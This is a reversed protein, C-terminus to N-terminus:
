SAAVEGARTSDSQADKVIIEVDYAEGDVEIPSDSFFAEMETVVFSNAEGFAALAGTDTSVFGVTLTKADGSGEEGGIGGGGCGALALSLAAAGLAISRKQRM